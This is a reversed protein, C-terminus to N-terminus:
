TTKKHNARPSIAWLALVKTAAIFDSIRMAEDPNHSGNQNRVLLMGTPVGLKAFMAADHGVTPLSHMAIGLDNASQRAAQALGPDLQIGETGVRSGFDFSVRFERELREAENRIRRYLQDMVDNRTGGINFSFRVDGPVKTMAHQEPDTAVIGFNIILDDNGGEALLDAWFGDAAAILRATATMADSRLHRPSAAAHGYRGSCAAFPHRINGRIATAVGVPLELDDLLPGQEIHLELYAAINEVPLRQARMDSAVSIAGIEHLHIALSKGTDFRKLGDLEDQGLLGLALKSGIYATGFWPSEECRFGITKLNLSPCVGARHCAAQVVVGAVVGALGDFNGGVPVSDLHSAIVVTKSPADGQLDYHFNGVADTSVDLGEKLAFTKLVEGAMTENPGFAARTIGRGDHSATAIEEFLAAAEDALGAIEAIIKEYKM